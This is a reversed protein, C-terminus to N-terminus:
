RNKQKMGCLKHMLAAPANRIDIDRQNALAGFNARMALRHARPHRLQESMSRSRTLTFAVVLSPSPKVPRPSPM